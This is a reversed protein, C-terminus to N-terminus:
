PRFAKLPSVNGNRDKVAIVRQHLHGFRDVVKPHGEYRGSQLRTVRYGLRRGQRDRPPEEFLMHPDIHPVVWFVKGSPAAAGAAGALKKAFGSAFAKQQPSAL